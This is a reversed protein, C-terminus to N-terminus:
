LSTLVAFLCSSVLCFCLFLVISTSPKFYNSSFIRVSKTMASCSVLSITLILSVRLFASTANFSSSLSIRLSYYASIARAIEAKLAWFSFSAASFALFAFSAALGLPWHSVMSSRSPITSAALALPFEPSTSDGYPLFFDGMKSTSILLSFNLFSDAPLYLIALGVVSKGLM